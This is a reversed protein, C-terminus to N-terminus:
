IKITKLNIKNLDSTGLGLQESLKLQRISESIPVMGQSTRKEDMINLLVTDLAVPDTGVIIGGYPWAYRPDWWPGGHFLGMLCDAIILKQKKRIVPIANLEPIGPNVCGTAHFQMPNDITGFHSKLAGTVGANQHHKLLPVSILADCQDTLLRCLKVKKEGLLYEKPHYYEAVGDSGRQRRSGIVGMVRIKGPDKQIKLGANMLEDDSRDWVILNKEDVGATKLEETLVSTVADYHDILRSSRIRSLGLTNLKIGVTQNPSVFRSWAGALSKERSFETLARRIMQKLLPRQVTGDAFIVEPHRVLVVKSGSVSSQSSLPGKMLPHAIAVGMTGLATRKLFERRPIEQGPKYNENKKEM